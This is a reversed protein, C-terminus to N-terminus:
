PQLTFNVTVTMMVPVPAGNLRTPTYKWQSVADLAAQTLRDDPSRLVTLNAVSGDTDIYAELFVLGQVGAAKADAPYVPAVTSIKKPETISGGVHLADPPPPPPQAASGNASGAPPPPPPPPPPVAAGPGNQLVETKKLSFAFDLTVSWAIAKGDRVAPEFTWRRAADLAAQNLAEIGQAVRAGTVTGQEDIVIQVTVTGEVRRALADDPYKPNERHIPVPLQVDASAATTRREAQRPAASPVPTTAARAAVSAGITGLVVIPLIAAAFTWNPLHRARADPGDLIRRVRALLNGGSAALALAPTTRIAELSALARAYTVRDGCVRVAVDDCCHERETRIRSSLWWTAPHYFLLTEAATQLLNVAFDHRRIHALEHALIAELESV